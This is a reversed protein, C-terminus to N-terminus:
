FEQPSPGLLRYKLLAVKHHMESKLAVTRLYQPSELSRRSNKLPIKMKKLIIFVVLSNILFIIIWNQLISFVIEALIGGLNKM